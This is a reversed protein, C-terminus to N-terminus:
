NSTKKIVLFNTYDGPDYQDYGLCRTHIYEASITIDDIYIDPHDFYDRARTIIDDITTDDGSYIPIYFTTDDNDPEFCRISGDKYYGM